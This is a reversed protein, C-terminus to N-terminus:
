NSIKSQLKTVKIIIFSKMKIMQKKRFKNDMMEQDMPNWLYMIMKSCFKKKNVQLNIKFHSIIPFNYIKKM